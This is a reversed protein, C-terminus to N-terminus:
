PATRIKRSSWSAGRIFVTVAGGIMQVFAMDHEVVIVSHGTRMDCVLEAMREVETETLEATPEDLLVLAPEAALLM